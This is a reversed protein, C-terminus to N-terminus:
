EWFQFTITKVVVFDDTKFNDVITKPSHSGNRADIVSGCLGKKLYVVVTKLHQNRYIIVNDFFQVSNGFDNVDLGRWSEDFQVDVSSIKMEASTSLIQNLFELSLLNYTFKNISCQNKTRKEVFIM